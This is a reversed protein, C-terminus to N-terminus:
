DGLQTLKSNLFYNELDLKFNDWDPLKHDSPHTTFESVIIAGSKVAFELGSIGEITTIVQNSNSLAELIKIKIGSGGFLPALLIKGKTEVAVNMVKRKLYVNNLSLNQSMASDCVAGYVYLPRFYTDKLLLRLARSNQVNNSGIFYYILGKAPIQDQRTAFTDLFYKQLVTSIFFDAKYYYFRRSRQYDYETLFINSDSHEITRRESFYAYKLNIFSYWKSFLYEGMFYDVECNQFIVTKKVPYHSTIKVLNGYLSSDFIVEDYVGSKLLNEFHVEKQRTLGNFRGKLLNALVFLRNIFRPKYQLFGIHFIDLNEAYIKKYHELFVKSSIHGGSFCDEENDKLRSIFLKKKVKLFM